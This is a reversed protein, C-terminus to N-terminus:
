PVRHGGGDRLRSGVRAPRHSLRDGAGPADVSQLMPGCDGLFAGDAAREVARPRFRQAEYSGTGLVIWTETEPRTKPAPYHEMAVPDGLIEFMGDIDDLTLERLILRDTRVVFGGSSLM